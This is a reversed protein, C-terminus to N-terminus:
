KSNIVVNIQENPKFGEVSISTTIILTTDDFTSSSTASKFWVQDTPLSTGSVHANLIDAVIGDISISAANGDKQQLLAKLSRQIDKTIRHLPKMYSARTEMKGVYTSATLQDLYYVGDAEDIIYNIQKDRLKGMQSTNLKYRLDVEGTNGLRGKNINAVPEAIGNIKDNQLHTILANYTSPVTIRRNFAEIFVKLQDQGTYIMLNRNSGKIVNRRQELDGDFGSTPEFDLYSNYDSSLMNRYKGLLLLTRDGMVLSLDNYAKMVQSTQTYDVMYDVDWRPYLTDRLENEPDNLFNIILKDEINRQLKGNVFLEGDSGGNLQVGNNILYEFLKSRANSGTKVILDTLISTSGAGNTITGDVITVDKVYGYEDMVSIPTYTTNTTSLLANGLVIKGGAITIKVGVGAANDQFVSFESVTDEIEDVEILELKPQNDLTYNIILKYFVGPDSTDEFVTENESQLLKKPLEDKPDNIVMGIFNNNDSFRDTISLSSNDFPDIIPNGDSDTSVLAIPIPTENQRVKTGDGLVEFINAKLFNNIFQSDGKSDSYYKEAEDYKTFEVKISNYGSGKSQAYAVTVVDYLKTHSLTDYQSDNGIATVTETGALFKDISGTNSYTITRRISDMVVINNRISDRRGPLVTDFIGGATKFSGHSQITNLLDVLPTATNGSTKTIENVFSNAATVMAVTEATATDIGGAGNSKEENEIYEIAWLIDTVALRYRGLDSDLDGLLFDDINNSTEFSEDNKGSIDSLSQVNPMSASDVRTKLGSDAYVVNNAYTSDEAILRKYVLHSYKQFFGDVFVNSMGYKNFSLNRGTKNKFENYSFVEDIGDKGFKTVVPLFISRGTDGQVETLTTEVNLTTTIGPIKSM